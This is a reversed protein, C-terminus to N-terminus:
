AIQTIQMAKNQFAFFSAKKLDIKAGSKNTHVLYQVTVSHKM